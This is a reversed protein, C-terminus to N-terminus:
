MKRVGLEGLDQQITQSCHEAGIHESGFCQIESNDFNNQKPLDAVQNQVRDQHLFFEPLSQRMPNM